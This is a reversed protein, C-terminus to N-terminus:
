RVTLGGYPSFRSHTQALEGVISPTRGAASTAAPTEVLNAHPLQVQLAIQILVNRVSMSIAALGLVTNNRCDDFM